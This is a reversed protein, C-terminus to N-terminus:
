RNQVGLDPATNDPHLTIPRLRILHDKGYKGSQSFRAPQFDKIQEGKCRMVSQEKLQGFGNDPLSGDAQRPAMFDEVSLSIFEDSYDATKNREGKDNPEGERLPNCGDLMSWSNHSDNLMPESGEETRAFEHNLNLANFGVCNRIYIVGSELPAQFRYNFSNGWATNNLLYIGEGAYNQDFGKDRNGFAICNSVVHAGSSRPFLAGGSSGGGGLKFGNGNGIPEGDPTYGAHYAWCNDILVPHYVMYLDWNDDSNNWARCGHFENGDGPFLKCAFGDADGGDDRSGDFRRLDANNYSDCNIVINCRCYKFDPNALPEGIEFDAPLHKQSFVMGMGIQLGTDNNNHFICQEIINHSGEIKMGNDTAHRLTLGKIHWYNARHNLYICRGSQFENRTSPRMTAGDIVVEGDGAAWLYCRQEASTAKAPIRIPETIYYIGTHLYITDGPMAMDVARQISCYPNAASGDSTGSGSPAVHIAASIPLSLLAFLSILLQRIMQEPPTSNLPPQRCQM